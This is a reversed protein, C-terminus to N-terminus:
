TQVTKMTLMFFLGSHGMLCVDYARILHGPQRSDDIHVYIVNNTKKCYLEYPRAM